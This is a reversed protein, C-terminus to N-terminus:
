DLLSRTNGFSTLFSSCSVAEETRVTMHLKRSYLVLLHVGQQLVRILLGEKALLTSVPELNPLIDLFVHMEMTSSTELNLTFHTVLHALAHSLIVDVVLSM